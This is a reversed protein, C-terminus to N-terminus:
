NHLDGPLASCRVPIRDHIDALYDGEAPRTIVYLPTGPAADLRLCLVGQGPELDFWRSVRKRDKEMWRVPRVIVPEPHWRKWYGKGLSEERAWGGEPWEGPQEKRRGWPLWLDAVPDVLLAAKPNPFHVRIFKDAGAGSGRVAANWEEDTLRELHRTFEMGGCMAVMM